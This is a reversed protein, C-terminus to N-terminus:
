PSSRAVRLAQIRSVQNSFSTDTTQEPQLPEQLRSPGPSRAGNTMNSQVNRDISSQYAPRIVDDSSLTEGLAPRDLRPATNSSEPIVSTNTSRAAAPVTAPAFSDPRSQALSSRGNDAGGLSSVGANNTSSGLNSSQRSPKNRSSSPPTAPLEKKNRRSLVTGLRKIGSLRGKKEPSASRDSAADPVNQGSQNRALPSAASTGSRDQRERWQGRQNPIHGQSTRLAFAKIEDATEVNLLANLCQEATVRNREVQDVEHTQFQTLVNRLHNVRSEDAAQLTEFMYPSQSNWQSDRRSSNAADKALTALNSKMTSIQQMEANHSVFNRLPREVDTEIKRALQMHSDALSEASTVIKQWPTTFVSCAKNTGQACIATLVYGLESSDSPPKKRSLARLGQAYQEEVRRREQLWDAIDDNVTKIHATRLNFIDVAQAPAMSSAM